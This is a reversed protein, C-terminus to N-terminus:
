HLLQQKLSVEEVRIYDPAWQHHYRLAAVSDYLSMEFELYNVVTQMVCTLIRTGSPTGVAMKPKGEDDFFLLLHCVVELPRKQPEILNNKGGIAGFLNSAGVKTAFDDMENNMVIGTGPAVVSSGFYGNITQTSSIVRGENDMITFHTTQDKEISLLIEM